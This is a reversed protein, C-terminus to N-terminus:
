AATRARKLVTVPTMLEVERPRDARLCRAVSLGFKSVSEAVLGLDRVIQRMWRPQAGDFKLELVLWEPAFLELDPEPYLNNPPPRVSATIHRDITLRVKPYEPRPDVYVERDYHVSTVPILGFQEIVNCFRHAVRASAEPASAAFTVWPKDGVRAWTDADGVKARSKIVQDDLKRKLEFFVPARDGPKGYTRARVRRRVRCRNLRSDYSQLDPTDFYTSHVVYGSGGAKLPRGNPDPIVFPASVELIHPVDEAHVMYKMEYRGIDLASTM